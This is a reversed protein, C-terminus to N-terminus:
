ARAGRARGAAAARLAPGHEDLAPAAPVEAPDPWGSIKVPNGPVPVGGARVVMRRAALQESSLATHVDEVPGCPVDAAGLVAVWHDTPRARLRDELAATLEVRHRHRAANDHFRPDAAAGPDGVAACLRAFQGDNAACVVVLGDATAFTDFPAISHHANGIREPSRGDALAHLAVGELLAVTADLMAVDVRRGTARGAAGAPPQVGRERGLLAALVGLVAFLGGALDSVPIGPKTPPDGPRGTAAMLGSRGQVVADYAPEASWPGSQGYGSVSAYVARPNRRAVADAGIGLRDAVGPRFNELVVDAQELLDWLVERDAPDRLDLAVSEKGRNVRTFYASRGDVFPGYARSDDGSGPREVKVVRAGLDALLVGALPGALVRTLDVVLLGSLPGRPRPDAAPPGGADARSPDPM